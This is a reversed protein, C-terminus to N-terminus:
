CSTRASSLVSAELAALPRPGVGLDYFSVEAQLYRIPPFSSQSATLPAPLARDETLPTRVM